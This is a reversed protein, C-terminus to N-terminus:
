TLLLVSSSDVETVSATAASCLLGVIYFANSHSVIVPAYICYFQLFDARAFLEGSAREVM